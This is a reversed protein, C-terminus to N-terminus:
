RTDDIKIRFIKRKRASVNWKKEELFYSRAIPQTIKSLLYRKCNMRMHTLFWMIKAVENKIALYWKRWHYTFYVLFMDSGWRLLQCFIVNRERERMNKNKRSPPLLYTGATFKSGLSRKAGGGNLILLWPHPLHSIDLLNSWLINELLCWNLICSSKLYIPRPRLQEELHM